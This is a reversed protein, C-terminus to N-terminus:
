ISAAWRTWARTLSAMRVPLSQPTPLYGDVESAIFLAHCATARVAAVRSAQSLSIARSPRRALASGFVRRGAEQVGGGPQRSAAASTAKVDLGAPGQAASMTVAQSRM